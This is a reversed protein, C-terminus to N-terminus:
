RGFLGRRQPTEDTEDTESADSAQAVSSGWVLEETPADSSSGDLSSLDSTSFDGTSVNSGVAAPEPVEELSSPMSDEDAPPSMEVAGSEVEESTSADTTAWDAPQSWNQQVDPVATPAVPMAAPAVQSSLEVHYYPKFGFTLENTELLRVDDVMQENRLQEVLEIAASLEDIELLERAGQPDGYIVMYSVDDDGSRTRRGNRVDSTLEDVATVRHQPVRWVEVM